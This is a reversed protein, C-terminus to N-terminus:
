CINELLMEFNTAVFDPQVGGSTPQYTIGLGTKVLISKAGARQGAEVDSLRDGVMYSKSLDIQLDHAAQLLM